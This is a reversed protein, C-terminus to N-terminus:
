AATATKGPAELKQLLLLFAFLLALSLVFFVPGGHKHLPGNIINPDVHITLLSITAIRVANRLMGIPLVLALLVFRSWSRRLMLKGALIGAILLVMTSHIGSCEQAVELTLDPMYFLLGDVVVPTGALFLLGQAVVASGRQLLGTVAAEAGAPLPVIFLLFLLPFLFRRYM